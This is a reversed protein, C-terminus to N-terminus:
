LGKMVPGEPNPNHNYKMIWLMSVAPIMMGQMEAGNGM